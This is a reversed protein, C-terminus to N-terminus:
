RGEDGRVHSRSSELFNNSLSDLRQEIRSVRDGEEM